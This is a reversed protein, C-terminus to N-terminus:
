VTPIMMQFHERAISHLFIKVIEVSLAVTILNEEEVTPVLKTVARMLGVLQIRVV